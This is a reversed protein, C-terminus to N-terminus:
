FVATLGVTFVYFASPLQTPPPFPFTAPRPAAVFGYTGNFGNVRDVQGKLSVGTNLAYKLGIAVTAQEKNEIPAYCTFFTPACHDGNVTNTKSLLVYPLHKGIYHGVSLYGSDSSRTWADVRLRAFEGAAFWQGDDYQMGINAFSNRANEIVCGACM